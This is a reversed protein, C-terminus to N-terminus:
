ELAKECGDSQFEECEGYGVCDAMAVLCSVESKTEEQVTETSRVPTNEAEASQVSLSSEVGGNSVVAQPAGCATATSLLLVPTFKRM